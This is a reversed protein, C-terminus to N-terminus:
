EPGYKELYRKMKLKRVTSASSMYRVSGFIPREPPWPRDYRGLTWCYGSYSNPDRGDIAHKDMLRTMADLAAEPSPTWELIKKGWLMRLYNHMWGDRTLQRQAANWVPDHTAASELEDVSYAPARRDHAHSELTARAWAPLSDYRDYAEPRTACMNFGLERWTVIQDLFAEAGPRVGWWGERRGGGRTGLQRSTWQEHTMVAAFVDHAAIHGFHLYPSLHSTGELDPHRQREGYLELSDDVFARLTAAAAKAGGAISSKTVSHDIPLQTLLRAPAAFESVSASRWRERLADPLLPVSGKIIPLRSLPHKSPWEDLHARLHRQLHARFARATGFPDAVLQMPLIGNSDVAEFPVPLRPSLDRLAHQVSSVPYDDTVVACSPSTMAEILGASEGRRREIYPYYVAGTRTAARAHDAMGELVFQHLRDSAYPDDTALSELIVLPKGISLALDVARDLSFNSSLRRATTMWYLVYRGDARLDRVNLRRIRVPPVRVM